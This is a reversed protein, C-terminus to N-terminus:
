FAEHHAGQFGARLSLQYVAGRPDGILSYFVSPSTADYPVDKNFINKVGAQVELADLWSAFRNTHFAYRVSLDHYTQSPVDEAGQNRLVVLDAPTNGLAVRYKSVYRTFWDVTWDGRTWSLTIGARVKNPISYGTGPIENFRGANEIVPAGPLLQTRYHPMWTGSLHISAGGFEGLSKTFDAAVDYAEVKTSSINVYQRRMVTVPGVGYPDGAPVPGRDLLGPFLAENDLLQQPSILAINDHKEIRTYDISLRLTPVITPTFVAGASWSTSKEPQLNASGGNILIL